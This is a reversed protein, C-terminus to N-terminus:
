SDETSKEFSIKQHHARQNAIYESVEGLNGQGVSFIAYGDQWAFDALHTFERHIWQSSEAKMSKVIQFPAVTPPASIMAHIHDDFGGIMLSKWQHHRAIGGLYEWVRGEIKPKIWPARNKTSFVIHYILKSFTNAM